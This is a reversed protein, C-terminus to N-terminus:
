NQSNPTRGVAQAVGAQNITTGLDNELRTVYQSLLEENYAGKLQDAIAKAAASNADFTPVKIDTVRFIFRDTANQGESSGVTDKATRFIQSIVRAPLIETGQRKLGWKTDVKLDDATAVDALSTGSKLKDVIDTTKANLRKVIEDERWRAEVRDKVEDLKRERSPTIEAVDYWVYGGTQLQLPDNENGIETAFAASVVDVGAPLDPVSKGDPACGSRDIAEIARTAINNAQAIQDLRM